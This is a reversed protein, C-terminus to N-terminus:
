DLTAKIEALIELTHEGLGPPARGTPARQGEIVLPNVLIKTANGGPLTVDRSLDLHAVQPDAIAQSISNVPECPVNAARFKSVWVAVDAKEFEVQLLEALADQNRARLATTTFRDDDALDPRNLVACVSQWLKDNGAAVVFFGDAAKFARYPANRPHASGHRLPDRGTGYYESTQFTALGLSAGLMSLDVHGGPGGMAVRRLMSAIAFAAYLATGIDSVPVGAKLPPGNREGTVSMIGSVAQVSVDFGGDGRRPGTQGFASISCYILDSRDRSVDRYGLGLREMAGPRNNEVVVQAAAILSKAAAVGDSTKLDLVISRKNRNLAAFNEGYGGTHPPWARLSDGKPPEVKIVDAGMDALLQTCFPGAAIQCFEIVRVGRLACM